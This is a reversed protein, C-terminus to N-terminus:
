RQADAPQWFTPCTPVNRRNVLSHHFSRNGTEGRAQGSLLTITFFFSTHGNLSM